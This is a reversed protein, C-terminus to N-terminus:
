DSAFSIRSFESRVVARTVVRDQGILGVSSSVHMYLPVPYTGLSTTLTFTASEIVVIPLPTNQFQVDSVEITIGSEIVVIPLRTNSLQIDNVEITSGFEMVVIPLAANRLQVESVEIM